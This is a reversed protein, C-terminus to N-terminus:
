RRPWRWARRWRGEPPAAAAEEGADRFLLSVAWQEGGRGGQDPPGPRGGAPTGAPGTGQRGAAALRGGVRSRQTGARM